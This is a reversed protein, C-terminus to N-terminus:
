RVNFLLEGELEEEAAEFLLILSGYRRKQGSGLNIFEVALPLPIRALVLMDWLSDPDAVADPQLGFRESFQRCFHARDVIVNFDFIEKRM